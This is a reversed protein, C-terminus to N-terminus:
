AKREQGQWFSPVEQARPRQPGLDVDPSEDLLHVRGVWQPASRADVAFQLLQADLDCLGGHRRGESPGAPLRRRLRPPREERIM